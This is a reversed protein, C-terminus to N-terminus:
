DDLLPLTMKSFKSVDGNLITGSDEIFELTIEVDGTNYKPKMVAVCNGKTTDIGNSKLFSTPISLRGRPDVKLVAINVMTEGKKNVNM